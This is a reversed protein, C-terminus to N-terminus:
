LNLSQMPEVSQLHPRPPGTAEAALQGRFNARLDRELFTLQTKDRKQYAERLFEWISGYRGVLLKRLLPDLLPDIFELLEDPKRTGKQYAESAASGVALARSALAYVVQRGGKPPTLPTNPAKSTPPISSLPHHGAPGNAGNLPSSHDMGKGNLPGNGGNLPGDFPEEVTVRRDSQPPDVTNLPTKPAFRGDTGRPGKGRTSGGAVSQRLWEHQNETGRVYVGEERVEALDCDVLADLEARKWVDHPVLRKGAKWYEQSLRWAEMATGDAERETNRERRAVAKILAARRKSTDKWWDDEANIRAVADLEPFYLLGERNFIASLEPM